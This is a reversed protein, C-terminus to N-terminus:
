DLVTLFWDKMKDILAKTMKGEIRENQGLNSENIM